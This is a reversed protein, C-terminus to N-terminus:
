AKLLIFFRTGGMPTDTVKITGNHADIIEKAICLGLGFHEKGSRSKDARYFRDFIHPKDKDAIGIGNDEVTIWFMSKNYSVALKTYGGATGYSLSNSILIGLVQEIRGKDCRCCPLPEEPLEIKLTINHEKALLEFSEFINLLLTDLEVPQLQLLFEGTDARNLLLLDETLTSLRRSEEEIIHIFREKQLEQAARAASIASSIVAIPTRLEHSAAAVFATQKQRAEIIPALLKGTYHWSFLLLIFIGAINLFLFRLRQTQIQGDLFQNSSLVIVILIDSNKHLKIMAAHYRKKDPSTWSLEQHVASYDSGNKLIPYVTEIYTKAEEMLVLENESLVIRNYFLPADNDYFALLFNQNSSTKSIWEWTITDQQELTSILSSVNSSFTLFYNEELEHESMYLYSISMGILIAGAIGTFLLTLRRHLKQYM